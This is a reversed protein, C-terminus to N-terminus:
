LSGWWQAAVLVAVSIVFVVGGAIGLREGLKAAALGSPDMRGKVIETADHRGILIAIIWLPFVPFLVLGLVGCAMVLEAHPPSYGPLRAGCSPCRTARPATPEGCASCWESPGEILGGVESALRWAPWGERWVRDDARLRGLSALVQLMALSVPEDCPKGDSSYHWHDAYPSPAQQPAARSPSPAVDGWLESFEGAPSWISLDRSVPVSKSIWHLDRFRRMDALSYPGRVWGGHRVYWHSVVPVTFDARDFTSDAVMDM